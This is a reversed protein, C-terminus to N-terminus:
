DACPSRGGLPLPGAADLCIDVNATSGHRNALGPALLHILRSQIQLRRWSRCIDIRHHSPKGCGADGHNVQDLNALQSPLVVQGGLQRHHWRYPLAAQKALLSGTTTRAARTSTALGTTAATSGASRSSDGASWAVALNSPDVQTAGAPVPISPIFTIAHLQFYKTCFDSFRSGFNSVFELNSHGCLDQNVHMVTKVCAPFCPGTETM